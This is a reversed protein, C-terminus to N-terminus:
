FLFTPLYMLTLRNQGFGPLHNMDECFIEAEFRLSPPAYPGLVHKKGSKQTTARAVPMDVM